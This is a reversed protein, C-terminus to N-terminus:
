YYTLSDDAVITTSSDIVSGHTVIKTTDDFATFNANIEEQKKIKKEVNRKKKPKNKATQGKLYYADIDVADPFNKKPFNSVKLCDPLHKVLVGSQSITLSNNGGSICKNIEDDLTIALMIDRPNIRSRKDEKTQGGALELVEAAMYELIAATYISAEVTVRHKRTAKKLKKQVKLVPFILGAQLHTRKKKRKMKNEDKQEQTLSSRYNEMKHKFEQAKKEKAASKEQRKEFMKRINKEYMQEKTLEGPTGSDEEQESEQAPKVQQTTLEENASSIQSKLAQSKSQSRMVPGKPDEIQLNNLNIDETNSNKVRNERRKAKTSPM